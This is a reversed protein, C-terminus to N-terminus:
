HSRAIYVLVLGTIIAISLLASTVLAGVINDKWDDNM